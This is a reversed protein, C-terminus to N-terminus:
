RSAAATPRILPFMATATPIAQRKTEKLTEKLRRRWYRLWASVGPQRPANIGTQGRVRGLYGELEDCRMGSVYGLIKPRKYLRDGWRFKCFSGVNHDLDSPRNVM